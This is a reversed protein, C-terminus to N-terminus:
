LESSRSNENWGHPDTHVEDSPEAVIKSRHLRTGLDDTELCSKFSISHGGEVVIAGHHLEFLCDHLQRCLSLGQPNGRMRAAIHHLSELDRQEQNDIIGDSKPIVRVRSEPKNIVAIPTVLDASFIFRKLGWVLLVGGLGIVGGVQAWWNLNMEVDAAQSTVFGGVGYLVLGLGLLTAAWEKRKIGM